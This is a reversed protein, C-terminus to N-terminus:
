HIKGDDDKWGERVSALYGVLIEMGDRLLRAQEDNIEMAGLLELLDQRPIDGFRLRYDGIHLAFMRLCETLQEPTLDGILRDALSYYAKFESLDDDRDVQIGTALSGRM